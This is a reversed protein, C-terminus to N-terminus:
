ARLQEAEPVAQTLLQIISQGAAMSNQDGAINAADLFMSAAYRLVIAASRLDDANSNDNSIMTMM